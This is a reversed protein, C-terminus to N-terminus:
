GEGKSRRLGMTKSRHNDNKEKQFSRGKKKCFLTGSGDCIEERGWGDDPSAKKQPNVKQAVILSLGGKLSIETSFNPHQEGGVYGM